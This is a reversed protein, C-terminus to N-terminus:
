QRDGLPGKSQHYIRVRDALWESTPTDLTAMREKIACEGKQTPGYAGIMIGALRYTGGKATFAAGGSDGVCLGGGSASFEGVWAPQHTCPPNSCTAALVSGALAQKVGLNTEGYGVALVPAGAKLDTIDGSLPSPLTVGTIAVVSWLELGYSSPGGVLADTHAVTGSDNKVEQKASVSCHDATVIVDTAIMVASCKATELYLVQDFGTVASGGSVMAKAPSAKTQERGDVTCGALAMAGIAVFQVARQRNV